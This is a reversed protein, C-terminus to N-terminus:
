AMQMKEKLSYSAWIKQVMNIIYFRISILHKQKNQKQFSYFLVVYTFSHNFTHIWTCISLNFLISPSHIYFPQIFSASYPSLHYIPQHHILSHLTFLYIFSFPSLFISPHISLHNSTHNSTHNSSHNSSFPFYLVFPHIFSFPPLSLHIFLYNPCKRSQGVVPWKCLFQHYM